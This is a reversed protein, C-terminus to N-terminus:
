FDVGVSAFVSRPRANIVEAYGSATSLSSTGAVPYLEDTLNNVGFTVKWSANPDAFLLSANVVTVDDVQSIEKSNAADFFQSATYTADVRPTIALKDGAHFTYSSGLHITWEPTFPLKNTLFATQTTGPFPNPNISDYSNDLYGASGELVFDASPAYTVELEGGKITAAGANFLLPVVGLRYTMQIDDYATTFAAANVRLSDSIDAKVGLEYTEATEPNFGIPNNSPPANNYRQNYGGSKFGQSWSLYTMVAPSWRYQISASGTTSTFDREYRSTRIFLCGTQTPPAGGFPCLATPLPNPNAATLPNVNFMTGQLGKTEETYRIGANISLADTVSFTWDTFGAWAQTDLHVFQQDRSGQIIGPPAAIPV